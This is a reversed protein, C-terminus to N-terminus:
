DRPQWSFLLGPGAAVIRFEAAVAYGPVVALQDGVYLLPWGARQWPPVRWEQFLHKLERRPGGAHLRLREGGGRYRVGLSSHALRRADLGQEAVAQARLEGHELVLAAWPSSWDPSPTAPVPVSAATVFLRDDYRRVAVGRWVVAPAGDVRAHLMDHLIHQLQARGPPPSGRRLLWRKILYPRLPPASDRLCSLALTPADGIIQDALAELVQVVEGQLSAVRALAATAGPFAHELTPLVAARLRNRAFRQEANSPDEMWTLGHVQAYVRLETRSEDLLPRLLRTDGYRGHTRIGALGHPGSGRLAHLLVTEAQDDQHHATLLATQADTQALLATYRAHRAWDEISAGAPPASALREASYTVGFRAAVEACRRTWAASDTHLAHDIHHARVRLGRTQTYDRVLHLLVTSDLGGSYAVLLASVGSAQLLADLRAACRTAFSAARKVDQAHEVIPTSALRPLIRM